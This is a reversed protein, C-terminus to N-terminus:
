QAGDTGAGFTGSFMLSTVFAQVGYTGKYQPAYPMADSTEREGPTVWLFGLHAAYNGFWKSAGLSINKRDIDPLQASQTTDPIPTPDYVFGARIAAKQAELKYEAGIRFTTTNEYNQPAVSASGDPLNIRLEEFSDWKIWVANAELELAPIPSYAVGGWISQPLTISTSIDGDPPLADRYPDEIDFDGTGEFDLTIQSRYMVGLKLGKV